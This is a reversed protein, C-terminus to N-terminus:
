RKLAYVSEEALFPNFNWFFLLQLKFYIQVKFIFGVKVWKALFQPSPDLVGLKTPLHPCSGSKKKNLTATTLLSERTTGHSWRCQGGRNSGSLQKSKKICRSSHSGAKCFFFEWLIWFEWTSNVSNWACPLCSHTFPEWLMLTVSIKHCPAPRWAVTHILLM